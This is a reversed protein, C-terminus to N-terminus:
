CPALGNISSGAPKCANPRGSVNVISRVAATSGSMTSSTKAWFAKDPPLDVVSLGLEYFASLGGTAPDFNIHSNVGAMPDDNKDVPVLSAGDAAPLQVTRVERPPDNVVAPNPCRGGAVASCDCKCNAATYSGCTHIIYCSMAAAPPKFSIGMMEQRSAAEARTFQVDTQFQDSVGRVRRSDILKGFSPAALVLIVALVALVIMMEILTFGARTPNQVHAKM